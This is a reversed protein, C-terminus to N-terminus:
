IYEATIHRVLDGRVWHYTYPIRSMAHSKPGPFHRLPHFFVNYVANCAFIAVVGLGDAREVVMDAM